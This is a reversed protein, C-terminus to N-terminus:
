ISTVCEILMIKHYQLMEEEDEGQVRAPLPGSNRGRLSDDQAMREWELSTM